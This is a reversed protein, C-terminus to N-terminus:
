VEMAKIKINRLYPGVLSLHDVECKVPNLLWKAVKFADPPRKEFPHKNTIPQQLFAEIQPKDYVQVFGRLALPGFRAPKGLILKLAKQRPSHLYGCVCLSSTQYNLISQWKDTEAGPTYFSFMDKAIIGDLGLRKAWEYFWVGYERVMKAVMLKINRTRINWDLLAKREALPTEM